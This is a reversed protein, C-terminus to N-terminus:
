RGVFTAILQLLCAFSFLVGGIILLARRFTEDDGLHRVLTPIWVSKLRKYILVKPILVVSSFLLAIGLRHFWHIGERFALSWAVGIVGLTAFTFISTSFFATLRSGLAKMRNEGLLEPALLWFSMFQFFIGTRDLWLNM